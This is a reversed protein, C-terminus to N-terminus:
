EAPRPRRRTRRQARELVATLVPGHEGDVVQRLVVSLTGRQEFLAWRVDALDFVGKSRLMGHVDDVTLGAARLADHLLHGDAVLLRPPHDLLRAVGGRLRARVLVTHAGLVTVLTALGALYGTGTANPVRGVIAGVAVAAVFDFGAMEALTRRHTVRLGAVATPVAAAGEPRRRRGRVARGAGRGVHAGRSHGRPVSRWACVHTRPRTDSLGRARGGEPVGTAGSCSHGRAGAHQGRGGPQGSGLGPPRDCGGRRRLLYFLASVGIPGFWGVFVADRLRLGLPRALALLVPLRRLLLVAAALVPGRWGLAARGVVPARHGAAPVAAAGPVPERGRRDHGAPRGRPRRRLLRLGARGRLVSLVGDADLLRATGLVAVALVLTFVLAAGADVDDRALAVSVAKGALLGLVLGVLAGVMVQYAGDVAAATLPEDLVLAVAVLVLPLALGDNTGSEASM